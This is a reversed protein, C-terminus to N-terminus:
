PYTRSLTKSRLDSAPLDPRVVLQVLTAVPFNAGNTLWRRAPGNCFGAPCGRRLSGAHRPFAVDQEFAKEIGQDAAATIFRALDDILRQLGVDGGLLDDAIEEPRGEFVDLIEVAAILQALQRVVEGGAQQPAEGVLHLHAQL